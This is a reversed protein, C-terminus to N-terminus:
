LFTLLSIDSMQHWWLILSSCCPFATWLKVYLISDIQCIIIYSLTKQLSQCNQPTEFASTYGGLFPLAKPSQAQGSDLIIQLPCSAINSAFNTFNIQQLSSLWMLTIEVLEVDREVNTRKLYMSPFKGSTHFVSQSLFLKFFSVQTYKRPSHSTWESSSMGRLFNDGHFALFSDLSSFFYSVAPFRWCILKKVKRPSRSLPPKELRTSFM